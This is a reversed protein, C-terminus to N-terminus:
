SVDIILGGWDDVEAGCGPPLLVTTYDGDVVAPGPIIEGPSLRELRYVCAQTWDGLYITREGVPLAPRAAGASGRALQPRPLRGIAALRVARVHVPQDSQYYGHRAHYATEFRTRLLSPWNGTLLDKTKLSVTLAHVQNAYLLDVSFNLLRNSSPVGAVDLRSQGEDALNDVLHQLEAAPMVGLEGVCARALEQRVDTALLGLASLVPALRPVVVRPIGLERALAVAHLGAAGGGALLTFRRPDHGERVTVARIGEAMQVNVLCYVGYAAMVDDGGLHRAVYQTMAAIAAARNLPMTGALFANPDLYGLLLNADTVTPQKGGRGYCAPGPEAGASQPGVSPLGDIGVSAISGGGTGLTHIALSPLAIRAGGVEQRSVMAPVGDEILAIDTSTGGMDLSILDQLGLLSGYFAAGYVGGALGSLVAGAALDGAATIPLTGGHSQMVLIDRRYGLHHLSAVLGDLYEVLIPGVYANVLTTSLRDYEGAQPLVQHSLCIYLTPFREALAQGALLEHDPNATSHLFCVAVAEVSEGALRNLSQGLSAPDMPTEVAGTYRAREVIPLRLYRPALPAPPPSLLNYRDTMKSGERMELLDRFGATTLLATRAGYRELLANTAVTTGHVVLACRSVLEAVPLGLREALLAVGKELALTPSHPTSPTKAATVNGAGDMVVLDTFTGGVDVGVCIDALKQSTVEQSSTACNM